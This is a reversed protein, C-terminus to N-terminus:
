QTSNVLAILKFVEAREAETLKAVHGALVNYAKLQAGEDSREQAVKAFISAVVRASKGPKTTVIQQLQAFTNTM